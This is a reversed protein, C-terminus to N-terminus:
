DEKRAARVHDITLRKGQAHFMKAEQLDEFLRRIRGRERTIARLYALHEEHDKLEFAEAISLIDEDTAFEPLRLFNDRGGARGEFQEFYGALAGQSFTKEFEPTFTLIITPNKEDQLRRLFNFVPQQAQISNHRSPNVLCQVNEVIITQSDNVSEFIKTRKMPQPAYLSTGYKEALTAIFERPSGNEPSEMWKCSLPKDRAIAKLTATKQTGTEGIIVGFRNVREPARKADVFNWILEATPTRIFPVKGALQAVNDADRLTGVLSLFTKLKVCPTTEKGESDRNWKGRLIKSFNTKDTQFGYKRAQEVLADLNRHLKERVYLGLWLFPERMEEPYSQAVSELWGQEYSITTDTKAM